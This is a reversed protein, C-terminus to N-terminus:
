NSTSPSIVLLAKSRLRVYVVFSLVAPQQTRTHKARLDFRLHSHGQKKHSMALERSAAKPAPRLRRRRRKLRPRCRRGCRSSCRSSSSSFSNTVSSSSTPRGARRTKSSSQRAASPRPKLARQARRPATGSWGAKTRPRAAARRQGGGTAARQGGSPTSFCFGCTSPWTPRWCKGGTLPEVLTAPGQPAGTPVQPRYNQVVTLPGADDDEDDGYGRRGAGAGSPEHQPLAEDEVNMDMDDGGGGAGAARPAAAALRANPPPPAPLPPPAKPAPVAAPAADGGDGHDPFDITEVIVFDHWDV